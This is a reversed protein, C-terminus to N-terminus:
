NGRQTHCARSQPQALWSEGLANPWGENFAIRRLRASPNVAFRHGVADLMPLDSISNGYAYSDWLSLGFRSALSRVARGKKAGDLHPGALRGTWCGDRTELQTACVQVPGPLQRAIGQALFDFTGSVLFVLHGETWHWSMRELAPAYLPQMRDVLFSEWDAALSTRLGALYQKNEFAAGHADFFMGKAFQLLWRTINRTPLEDHALLFAIFRWELSPPAVVTGDLDFFSGIKDPATM